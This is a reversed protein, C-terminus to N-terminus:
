AASRGQQAKQKFRRAPRRASLTAPRSAAVADRHRPPRVEFCALVDPWSFRLKVESGYARLEGRRWRERVTACTVGLRKAAEATSLLRASADQECELAFLAAMADHQRGYLEDRAADLADWACEGATGGDEQL